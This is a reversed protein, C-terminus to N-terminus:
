EEILDYVKTDIIYDTDKMRLLVQLKKTKEFTLLCSTPAYREDTRYVKLDKIKLSEMVLKITNIKNTANALNIINGYGYRLYVGRLYSYKLIRSENLIVNKNLTAVFWFDVTDVIYLSNILNSLTKSYISIDGQPGIKKTISFCQGTQNEYSSILDLFHNALKVESPYFQEVMSDYPEGTFYDFRGIYEGLMGLIEYFDRNSKINQNASLQLTIVAFLCILLRKLM